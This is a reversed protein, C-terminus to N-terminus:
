LMFIAQQKGSLCMLTENECKRSSFDYKSCLPKVSFNFQFNNGEGEAKVVLAAHFGCDLDNHEGAHNSIIWLNQAETSSCRVM